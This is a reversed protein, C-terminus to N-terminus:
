KGKVNVTGFSCDAKIKNRDTNPADIYVDGFDCDCEIEDYNGSIDIDGANANVEATKATSKMLNIDGANATINISGATIDEIDIDGANTDVDFKDTKIYSIDIDGANAEIDFEKVDIDKVDIDGASVEINISDLSTDNPIVINLKFGDLSDLHKASERQTIILKGNKLEVTPAYKEPFNADVTFTSGYQINVDTQNMDISIDTIKEDTFDYNMTEVDGDNWGMRSWGFGGFNAVHGWIAAVVIILTVLWIIVLYKKTWKKNEM